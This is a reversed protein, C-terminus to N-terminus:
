ISWLLCVRGGWLTIAVRIELCWSRFYTSAEVFAVSSQGRLLLIKTETHMGKLLRYWSVSQASLFTVRYLSELNCSKKSVCKHACSSM